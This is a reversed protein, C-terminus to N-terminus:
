MSLSLGAGLAPGHATPLVAPHVSWAQVWPAPATPPASAPVYRPRTLAYASLVLSGVVFADTLLNAAIMGGDGNAGDILAISVPLVAATTLSWLVTGAVAPGRRVGRGEVLDDLIMGDTVVGGIVLGGGLLASAVLLGEYGSGTPAGIGQARAVTPATFVSTLLLAAALRAPPRM